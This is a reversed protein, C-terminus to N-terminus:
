APRETVAVPSPAASGPAAAPGAAATPAAAATPDAVATPAPAATPGAVATAPAASAVPTATAPAAPATVPRPGPAQKAAEGRGSAELRARIAGPSFPVRDATKYLQGRLDVVIGTMNVGFLERIENEYLFAGGFLASISPVEEGPMVREVIHEFRTGKAFSWSLDFAGHELGEAPLLSTANIIALRWGDRQYRGVQELLDARDM